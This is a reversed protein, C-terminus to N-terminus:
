GEGDRLEPSGGGIKIRGHTRDQVFWTAGVLEPHRAKLDRVAAEIREISDTNTFVPFFPGAGSSLRRVSFVGSLARLLAECRAEPQLKSEAVAVDIWSLTWIGSLSLSHAVSFATGNLRESSSPSSPVAWGPLASELERDVWIGLVDQGPVNDKARRQHAFFEGANELTRLIDDSSRVFLLIGIM